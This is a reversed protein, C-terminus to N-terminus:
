PCRLACLRAKCNAIGAAIIEELSYAIGALKLPSAGFPIPTSSAAARLPM